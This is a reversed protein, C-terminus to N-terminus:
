ILFSLVTEDASYPHRAPHYSAAVQNWLAKAGINKENYKIEWQGRYTKLILEAACKGIHQKRYMPFITFEALVHDPHENIYSFPNIMAFGVLLKDRYLFLATREPETFYDEFYRYPYNGTEDMEDDYYSTMEYLYKQLLNWLLDRQESQVEALQIMENVESIGAQWTGYL